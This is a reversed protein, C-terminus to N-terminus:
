WCQFYTEHEKQLFNQIQRKFANKKHTPFFKRLFERQMEQWTGISKPKLSNLWTKSKDKLSFPFLKLKIIDESCTQENFTACVEEFEKLHLYPSESELGHFTPILPIMGSRFKFNNANLPFVFCSPSSNRPPQLYERMSRMPANVQEEHVSENDAMTHSTHTSSNSSSPSSSPSSSAFNFLEISLTGCNGKVLRRSNPDRFWVSM